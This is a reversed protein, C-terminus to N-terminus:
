TSNLKIKDKIKFLISFQILNKPDLNSPPFFVKEIFPLGKIVEYTAIVDERKEATANWEFLTKDQNLGYQLSNFTTQAPISEQITQIIDSYPNKSAQLTRIVQLEQNAEQIKVDLNQENKTKYQREIMIFNTRSIKLEASSQGWTFGFAMLWGVSMLLIILSSAYFWVSTEKWLAISRVMPPLLNIPKEGQQRIANDTLSAGIVSPLLKTLTDNHYNQSWYAIRNQDCKKLNIIHKLNTKLPSLKPHFNIGFAEQFLSHFMGYGTFIFEFPISDQPPLDQSSKKKMTESQIKKDISKGSLQISLPTQEKNKEWWSTISSLINQKKQEKEPKLEPEPKPVSEDEETSKEQECMSQNLKEFNKMIGLFEEKLKKMLEISAMGIDVGSLSQLEKKRHRKPLSFKDAIANILSDEGINIQELSILTKNRFLLVSTYKNQLDMIVTPQASSKGLAQILDEARISFGLPMLGCSMFVDYYEQIFEFPVATFLIM